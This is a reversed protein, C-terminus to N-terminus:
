YYGTTNKKSKGLGEKFVFYDFKVDFNPHETYYFKEISPDNRLNYDYYVYEAGKMEPSLFASPPVKNPRDLSNGLGTIKVQIKYFKM